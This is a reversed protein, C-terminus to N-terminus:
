IYRQVPPPPAPKGEKEAAEAKRKAESQRVEEERVLRAALQQEALLRAKVQQELYSIARTLPALVRGTEAAVAENFKRVALKIPKEGAELAKKGRQLVLLAQTADRRTDDSDVVISLVAPKSSARSSVTLAVIALRRIASIGVVQRSRVAPWLLKLSRM